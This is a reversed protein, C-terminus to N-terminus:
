APVFISYTRAIANRGPMASARVRSCKATFISSRPSAASMRWCILFASITQPIQGIAPDAASIIRVVEAVTLWSAGLGGYARPVSIAWLGSASFADIEAHPLRRQQDRLSAERAFDQALVQAIAIAETETLIRHAPARAASATAGAISADILASM